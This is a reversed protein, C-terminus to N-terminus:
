YESPTGSLGTRQAVESVNQNEGSFLTNEIQTTILPFRSMRNEPPNASLYLVTPATRGVAPKRHDDIFFIQM